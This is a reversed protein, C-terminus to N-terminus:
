DLFETTYDINAPIMCLFRVQGQGVNVYTHTVKPPIYIVDGTTVIRAQGALTMEMTGDLVVQQHEIEGHVHKPIKCGPELTFLRVYLNPMKDDPGQLVQISVGTSNPV